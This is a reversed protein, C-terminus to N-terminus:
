AQTTVIQKLFAEPLVQGTMRTQRGSKWHQRITKDTLILWLKVAKRALNGKASVRLAMNMPDKGTCRELLLNTCANWDKALRQKWVDNGSTSIGTGWEYIIGNEPFYHISVGDYAMLRYANDEAYVVKGAIEQLYSLQVERRCIVAAGLMLDDFILYNWRIQEAEKQLYCDVTRPHAKGIRLHKEGNEQEYCVADSFSVQGHAAEMSVIWDHLVDEGGLMDGPSIIKIYEGTSCEVGSLVNYVTGRNQPNAVIVYDKFHHQAFLAEAAEFCPTKSGDDAIVIQVAINRQLLASRLTELLKEKSPNYTVVVVSVKYQPQM